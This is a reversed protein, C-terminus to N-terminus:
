TLIFPFSTLESENIARPASANLSASREIETAIEAIIKTTNLILKSAYTLTIKDNNMIFDPNSSIFSDTSM